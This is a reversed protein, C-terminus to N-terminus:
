NQVIQRTPQDTITDEDYFAPGEPLYKMIQTILVDTNDKKLASVPVIEAFALQKRYIDISELLQEKKVTDIKNVM